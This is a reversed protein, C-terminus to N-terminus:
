VTDFDKFYNLNVFLKKYDSFDVKQANNNEVWVIMKRHGQALFNDLNDKLNTNILAFTPHTKKGDTAVCIDTNSQQMCKLLRDVLCAEVFPSDCPLVLLYKTTIIELAAFVGALPGQFKPLSDVIVEGFAQYAKLNRNASILVRPLEKQIAALVYSILPKGKFLVLGKDQHNMRKAQGGALIVATIDRKSIHKM